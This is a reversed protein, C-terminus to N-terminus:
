FKLLPYPKNLQFKLLPYPKNVAALIVIVAALFVIVAAIINSLLKRGVLGLTEIALQAWPGWARPGPGLLCGWRTGMVAALFDNVAALFGIAAAFFVIVAALFVIVAAIVNSWCVLLLCGSRFM